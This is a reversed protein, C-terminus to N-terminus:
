HTVEALVDAWEILRMKRNGSVIEKGAYNSALIFKRPEIEPKITLKNSVTRGPGVAVVFYEVARADNEVASDPLLLGGATTEKAPVKEVLLRDGIPKIM